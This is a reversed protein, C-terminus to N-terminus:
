LLQEQMSLDKSAYHSMNKGGYEFETTELANASAETVGIAETVGSGNCTFNISRRMCQFTRGSLTLHHHLIENADLM